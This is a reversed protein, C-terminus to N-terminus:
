VKSLELIWDCRNIMKIKNYSDHCPKVREVAPSMVKLIWQLLAGPKLNHNMLNRHM